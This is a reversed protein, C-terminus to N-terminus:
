SFVKEASEEGGTMWCRLGSWKSLWKVVRKEGCIDCRECVVGCWVVGCRVNRENGRSRNLSRM